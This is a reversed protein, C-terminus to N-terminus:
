ISDISQFHAQDFQAAVSVSIHSPGFSFRIRHKEPKLSTRAIETTKM